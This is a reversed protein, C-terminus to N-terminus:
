ATLLFKKEEKIATLIEKSVISTTTCYVRHSIKKLKIKFKEKLEWLEITKECYIHWDKATPPFCANFDNKTFDFIITGDDDCYVGLPIKSEDTDGFVEKMFGLSLVIEGKIIRADWDQSKTERQGRGIKMSHLTM